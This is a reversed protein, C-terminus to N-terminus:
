SNLYAALVSTNISGDAELLEDIASAPTSTVGDDSIIFCQVEGSVDARNGLSTLLGIQADSKISLSRSKYINLTGSFSVNDLVAGEEISSALTGFSAGSLRSGAQINYTVNEFTLDSIKATSSIVAFIGGRMNSIDTQNVSIGTIKHGNGVITGSFGNNTFARPWSKGAFDLDCLLEYNATASINSTFQSQNEICYWTGERWKTYIKITPTLTVATAEDYAGIIDSTIPVTCEPDSYAGDFTYGDRKPFTGMDMKGNKWEPLSLSLLNDKASYPQSEGAVYTEFKYYPVWAAYLTLSNIEATPNSAPDIELRSTEFDWKGSYVYGQEDPNTTINGFDDLMNGDNDFRLERQSYWGALFYGTRSVKYVVNGRASNDPAILPIEYNGASNKEFDDMKFLDVVFVNPTNTFVGKGADFRVSVNYGEKGYNEYPSNWQSCSALCSLTAVALAAVIIRIILKKM